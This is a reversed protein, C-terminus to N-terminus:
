PHVRVWTWAYRTLDPSPQHLYVRSLWLIGFSHNNNLTTWGLSMCSRSPHCQAVLLRCATLAVEHSFQPMVKGCSVQNTAPSEICAVFPVSSEARFRSSPLQSCSCTRMLSSDRKLLALQVDTVLKLAEENLHSADDLHSPNM